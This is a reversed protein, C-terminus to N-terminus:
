KGGETVKVKLKKYKAGHVDFGGKQALKLAAKALDTRYAAKSAAKKIVGFKLAIAATRNFDAPKMIGIGLRNPWILANIENM